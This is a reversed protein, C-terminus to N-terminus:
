DGLVSLTGGSMQVNLGNLQTLGECRSVQPPTDENSFWLAFYIVFMKRTFLNTNFKKNLHLLHFTAFSSCCIFNLIEFGIGGSRIKAKPM